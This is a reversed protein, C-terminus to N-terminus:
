GVIVWNKDTAILRQAASLGAAGYNGTITITASTTASRDTLNTFIEVLADVGLGSNLFSVTRALPVSCKRLSTCSAGFTTYDTGASPTISATNFAPIFQLSVCNNFMVSMNTVLATNFLPVSQLSACGSFMANMLTVSATNFLPVSQLQSFNNFMNALSTCGGITKVDFREVYRHAVTTGGIVVGLSTANPISLICDLFGTVYTTTQGTYRQQLNCITLNGSVATVVIIAQKYGRTSLTAEGVDYTAYDYEHEATVASDHLTTTGDGWDVQYQGASTTFRMAAFNDGSEHIAHLGVFTQDTDIVTPMALWDAPRIWSPVTVKRKNGVVEVISAEVEVDYEDVLDVGTTLQNDITGEDVGNVEFTIASLVSSVTMTCAVYVVGSYLGYGTVAVTWSYM